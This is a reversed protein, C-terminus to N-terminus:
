GMPLLPPLGEEEDFYETIARVRMVNRSQSLLSQVEQKFGQDSRAKTIVSILPVRKSVMDHLKIEADEM